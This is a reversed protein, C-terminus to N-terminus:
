GLKSSCKLPSLIGVLSKSSVELLLMDSLLRLHTEFCTALSMIRIFCIVINQFLLFVDNSANRQMLLM